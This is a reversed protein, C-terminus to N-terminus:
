ILQFHKGCRPGFLGHGIVYAKSGPSPCMLEMSIPFIEDPVFELQLLAIDLPGNSVYVVKADTWLWPDTCDLRVRISRQGLNKMSNFRSAKHGDAASFDMHNVGIPLFDERRRHSDSKGYGQFISKNSLISSLGAKTQDIEGAAAAKGFRWPELLHANTLVLGQKNLLVGSAWAGDDVTILCISAMAKEVPSPRLFGFELIRNTSRGVHLGETSTKGVTNLNDSNGFIEKWRVLPEEQPLLHCCTSAIAEWPVVLQSGFIWNSYCTVCSFRWLMEFEWIWFNIVNNLTFDKGVVYTRPSFQIFIVFTLSCPLAQKFNFM